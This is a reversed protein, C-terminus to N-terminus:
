KFNEHLILFVIINISSSPNTTQQTSKVKFLFFFVVTLLLFPQNQEQSWLQQSYAVLKLVYIDTRFLNIPNKRASEVHNTSLAHTRSDSGVQTPDGYGVTVLKKVKHLSNFKTFRSCSSLIQRTPIDHPNFSIIFTYLTNPVYYLSLLRQETQGHKSSSSM